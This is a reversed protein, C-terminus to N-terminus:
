KEVSISLSRLLGLSAVSEALLQFAETEIKTRSLDIDLEHLHPLSALGAAIPQAHEKAIASISLNLSLKEVKAVSHLFKGIHDASKLTLNQGHVDLFVSGISCGEFKLCDFAIDNANKFKIEQIEGGKKKEKAISGKGGSFNKSIALPSRKDGKSPTMPQFNEKLPSWASNSLVVDGLM